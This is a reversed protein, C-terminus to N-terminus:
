YTMLATRVPAGAATPTGQWDAILSPFACNKPYWAWGVWSAGHTDAYAIVDSNYQGACTTTSGFETVIVPARATLYGWSGDWAAVQKDAQDYPHTAYLINYGDIPAAGVMSLDFAYRLGGVIVLNNAGTSRIAGYLQQM